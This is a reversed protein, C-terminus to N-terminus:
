KHRGPCPGGGSIKLGCSTAPHLVLYICGLPPITRKAPEAAVGWTLGADDEECEPTPESAGASTPEHDEECDQTPESAGANAPELDGVACIPESSIVRVAPCVAGNHLAWGDAKELKYFKSVCACFGDSFIAEQGIETFTFHEGKMLTGVRPSRIAPGALIPTECLVEAEGRKEHTYRCGRAEHVLTIPPPGDTM